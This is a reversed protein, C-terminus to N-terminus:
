DHVAPLTLKFEVKEIFTGGSLLSFATDARAIDTAVDTASQVLTDLSARCASMQGDLQATFAQLFQLLAADSDHDWARGRQPPDQM